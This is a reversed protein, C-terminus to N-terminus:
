GSSSAIDDSLERIFEVRVLSDPEKRFGRVRVRRDWLEGIREGSLGEPVLCKQPTKEDDGTYVTVILEDSHTSGQTGKLRGEVTVQEEGAESLGMRQQVTKRDAPRLSVAEQYGSSQLGVFALKRGDPMVDRAVNTFYRYYSHDQRCLGLLASRNGAQAFDFIRRTTGIITADEGDEPYKLRLQPHFVDLNYGFIGNSAPEYRVQMADQIGKSIRGTRRFQYGLLLEQVRVIIRHLNEVHSSLLSADIFDATVRRGTMSVHIMEDRLQHNIGTTHRRFRVEDFVERLQAGIQDDVVGALGQAAYREALVYESCRLALAAASRYIIGRSPELDFETLLRDAVQREYHFAAKWLSDALLSDPKRKASAAKARSALDMSRNHLRNLEAQDLNSM